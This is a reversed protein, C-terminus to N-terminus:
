IVKANDNLAIKGGKIVKAYVGFDQHNWGDRLAALTDIDREGTQPNAMTHKCREVPAIIELVADGIQVHRGLWHLEEWPATGDLWINGRWREKELPKGLRAAVAEHSAATMVSITPYDTDTMGRDPAKVIGTPRLKEPPCLSSVWELFRPVDAANDPDFSIEGIADHRLTMLGSVEDFQAWIGALSPTSAGIMFNRCSEWKPADHDFKSREHTIAWTRDWPMTQGPSLMVQTLAERGHSKIPHRWLAAVNVM